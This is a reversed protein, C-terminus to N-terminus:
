PWWLMGDAERPRLATPCPALLAQILFPSAPAPWPATSVEREGAPPGATRAPAPCGRRARCRRASHCRTWAPSSCWRGHACPPGATGTPSPPCARWPATSCLTLSQPLRAVLQPRGQAPSMVSVEQPGEWGLALPSSSGLLGRRGQLSRSIRSIASSMSISMGWMQSYRASSMVGMRCSSPMGMSSSNLHPGHGEVPSGCPGLPAGPLLYSM